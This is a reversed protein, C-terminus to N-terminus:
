VTPPVLFKKTPLKKLKTFHTLPCINAFKSSM